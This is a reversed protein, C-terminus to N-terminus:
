CCCWSVCSSIFFFVGFIKNVKETQSQHRCLFGRRGLRERSQRWVTGIPQSCQKSVVKWQRPCIKQCSVYIVAAWSVNGTGEERLLAFSAAGQLHSCCSGGLPLLKGRGVMMVLATCLAKEIRWRPNLSIIHLLDAGSSLSQDWCTCSVWQFTHEPSILLNLLKFRSVEPYCKLTEM